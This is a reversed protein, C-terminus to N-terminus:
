HTEEAKEKAKNYFELIKDLRHKVGSKTLSERHLMALQSMSLSDNELRLVATERLEEPMSGLLGKDKIYRIACLYVTNAKVAKKMNATDFNNQRNINSRMEKVLKLNIMDFAIGAGGIFAIFDEIAGSNKYYFTFRNRRIGRKADLGRESLVGCVYDRFAEDPFSLELHYSKAPDSVTGFEIFLIRLFTAVCEDCLAREGAKKAKVCDFPDQIADRLLKETSKCCGKKPTIESLADKAKRSFSIEAM